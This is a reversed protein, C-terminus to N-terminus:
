ERRLGFATYHLGTEDSVLMGGAPALYKAIESFPPLPNAELAEHLARLARNSQAAEELRRRTTPSTALDYFSRMSEEPRQFAVMGPKANGLQQRVRSAILKFDLEEAFPQAPDRFATIAAELCASSDSALLHDGVVAISPSPQRILASDVNQDAPRTPFVWYTIGRFHKKTARINPAALVKELTTRVAAADVLRAGVLNTGSNVRAPKEFWSVHTFRGDLQGLVDKEFDIGLPDSIRRRLANSLANEGNFQDFMRRVAELTQKTNWNITMYSAADPPVWSEPTTDGAEVAIMQLLGSRPNDLLLHMHAISDFDEAAYIMSGGAAKIGDLGLLPLMALAMQAGSNDRSLNRFLEIPDVFWTVQPREDKTGVSRSMISTFERNDALTAAGEDGTWTQLVERVLGPDSGILVVGERQVLTGRADFISMTVGDVDETTKVRGNRLAEQEARDLLKQVIPMKDGVEVLILVAPRGEDRGIVAGWVEGQPISLIDSLSVGVVDQIEAFAQTASGYLHLVLPKIKEDQLLRGMSTTMFQDVLQRSDAVRVYALTKKPLLQPAAPREARAATGGGLWWGCCSVALLLIARWRLGKFM